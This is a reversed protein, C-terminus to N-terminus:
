DEIKLLPPDAREADESDVECSDDCAGESSGQCIRVRIHGSGRAAHVGEDRGM